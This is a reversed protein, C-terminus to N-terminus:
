WNRLIHDAIDVAIRAANGTPNSAAFFLEFLPSNRRNRLTRSTPAVRFFAQELRKRYCAAIFDSSGLREQVPADDLPILPQQLAVQYLESWYVRGGFIRDLQRGLAASPENELPMMRAIAMLPFLIWCDIKETQALAAVTDWSVQTAYPDLFVVARDYPRLAACFPPLVVNADEALIEISRGPFEDKLNELAQCGAADKEIFVLRDFSKDQVGLAIRPSGDRLEQFDAYEASAYEASDYDAGTQYSGYGAFADVYVLEFGQNKLVTTYRGLYESLIALKQATWDGGFTQQIM